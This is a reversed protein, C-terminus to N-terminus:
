WRRGVGNVMGALLVPLDLNRLATGGYCARANMCSFVPDIMDRHKQLQRKGSCMVIQIASIKVVASM